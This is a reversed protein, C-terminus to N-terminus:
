QGFLDSFPNKRPFQLLNSKAPPEKNYPPPSIIVKDEPEENHYGPEWSTGFPTWTGGFGFTRAEEQMRVMRYEQGALIHVLIAILILIFDLEWLGYLGFLVAMVKGLQSAYFTARLRGLKPTLIARLIRGGDMPFAPLLNFAVLCLNIAGFVQIINMNYIPVLSLNFQAGAFFGALCLVLSVLPGAIAMFFEDLPKTPIQDMQAVGGLFMLTIERVRCGKRIAVLSHGLEHLIISVLLGLAVLTGYMFGFHHVMVFLLVILSIHVKIPIGWIRTIRYSAKFM